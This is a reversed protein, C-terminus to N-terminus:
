KDGIHSPLIRAVEEEGGDDSDASSDASATLSNMLTLSIFLLFTMSKM